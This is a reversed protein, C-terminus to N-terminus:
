SKSAEAASNVHSLLRQAFEIGFPKTIYDVAGVEFGRQKDENSHRGSTFVVPTRYSFHRQKLETCIDFGTADPLDIDLIILDFKTKLALQLGEKGTHIAQAECGAKALLILLTQTLPIDDEILLIKTKELMVWGM